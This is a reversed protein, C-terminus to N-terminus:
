SWDLYITDAVQIESEKKDKIEFDFEKLLLIWRIFRPKADKKAFMYRILAHDIHVILKTEILYPRFKDYAFM